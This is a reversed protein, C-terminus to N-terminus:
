KVWSFLRWYINVETKRNKVAHLNAVLRGKETYINLDWEKSVTFWDDEPWEHMREALIRLAIVIESISPKM